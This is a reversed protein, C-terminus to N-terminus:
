HGGGISEEEQVRFGDGVAQCEEVDGEEGRSTPETNVQPPSSLSQLFNTSSSPAKALGPSTATTSPKACCLSAITRVSDAADWSSVASARCGASVAEGRMRDCAGWDIAGIALDIEILSPTKENSGAAAFIVENDDVVSLLV